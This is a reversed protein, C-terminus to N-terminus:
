DCMARQTHSTVAETHQITDGIELSSVSIATHHGDWYFVSRIWRSALHPYNVPNMVTKMWMETGLSFRPHGVWALGPIAM